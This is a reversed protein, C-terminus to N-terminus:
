WKIVKSTAWALGIAFVIFEVTRLVQAVPDFASFDLDIMYSFGISEIVFPLHVHPAVPEAKFKQLLNHIDFPICFPFLGRLDFKKPEIEGPQLAEAIDQVGEATETLIQDLTATQEGIADVVDQAAQDIAGSIVGTQTQIGEQVGELVGTVDGIQDGIDDLHGSINGIDNGIGDLIEGTQNIGDIVDDVPTWTPVPGPPVPIDIVDGDVVLNNDAVAQDINGLLQDLNTDPESYGGITGTWEKGPNLVVPEIFNTGNWSLSNDLTSPLVTVLYKRPEYVGGTWGIRQAYFNLINQQGDNEIVFSFGGTFVYSGWIIGLQTLMVGDDYIRIYRFGGVHDQTATIYDYPEAEYGIGIINGASGSYPLITNNYITEMLTEETSGLNFKDGLWNVFGVISNYMQQGVVLKGAVDVAINGIFVDAISGGQSNVYEQVQNSMFDNMGSATASGATFSIGWSQMMAYATSAIQSATFPDAYAKKRFPLLISVILVWCLVVAICRKKM